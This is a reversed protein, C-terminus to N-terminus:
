QSVATAELSLVANRCGWRLEVPPNLRNSCVHALLRRMSAQALLWSDVLPHVCQLM